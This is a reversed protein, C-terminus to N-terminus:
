RILIVIGAIFALSSVVISWFVITATRDPSAEAHEM